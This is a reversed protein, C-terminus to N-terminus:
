KDILLFTRIYVGSIVMDISAMNKRCRGSSRLLYKTPHTQSVKTFEADGMLVVAVVELVFKLAM